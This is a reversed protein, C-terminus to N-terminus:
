HIMVMRRRRVRRKSRRGVRRKSNRSMVWGKEERYGRGRTHNHNTEVLLQHNQISQRQLVSKPHSGTKRGGSRIEIGDGKRRPPEGVGILPLSYGKRGEAEKRKGGGSDHKRRWRGKEKERLGNSKESKEKRYNLKPPYKM